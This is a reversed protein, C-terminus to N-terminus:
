FPIASNARPGIEGLAWTAERRKKSGETAEILTPVSRPGIDALANAASMRVDDDSDGLARDLHPIAGHASPGIKGIAAAAAQRVCAEADNLARTLAKLGTGIRGLSMAATRRLEPEGAERDWAAPTEHQIPGIPMARRAVEFGNIYAVFGDDFNVRLYLARVRKPDKRLVFDNRLYVTPYKNEPDPGYSLTTNVFPEGYGLPAPGEAWDRDDYLLDRWDEPLPETTIKGDTLDVCLLKGWYGSMKKGEWLNEVHGALDEHGPSGKVRFHNRPQNTGTSTLM